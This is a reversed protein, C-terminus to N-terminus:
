IVFMNIKIPKEIIVGLILSLYNLWASNNIFVTLKEQSIFWLIFPRSIDSRITYSLEFVGKNRVGYVDLILESIVRKLTLM